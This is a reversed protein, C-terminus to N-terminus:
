FKFRFGYVPLEEQMFDLFEDRKFGIDEYMKWARQMAKTSHIIVQSCKQERAREICGKTLLKGIGLGRAEIDVALLRFGASNTEATANGGSGYYKIDGFYLVAGLIKDNGNSVVLLECNPKRTFDGINALMEYYIPQEERKPFGDLQSYVRIMLQSIEDFEESKAQRIKYLNENM